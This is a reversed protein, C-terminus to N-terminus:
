PITSSDPREFAAITLENGCIVCGNELLAEKMAENVEMSKACAPCRFIYDTKSSSM